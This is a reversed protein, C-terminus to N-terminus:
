NIERLNSDMDEEYYKEQKKNKKQFLEEYRKQNEVVKKHFTASTFDTDTEIVTYIGLKKPVEYPDVAGHHNVSVKGEAVVSADIIKITNQDVIGPAGIIIDDVYKLALVALIREQLSLVPYHSGKRRAITEDDHVGVILYTGLEKAKKLFRVHGIHILDFSGDVYVIKDEPTPAKGTVFAKLRRATQLFKVPARITEKHEEPDHEPKETGSEKAAEIKAIRLLRGLIDTTSIGETRKFIKMRKAQKIEYYSDVGDAGPALDDGHAVNQCNLEDILAITPNYPIKNNAIEDGWKCAAAIESREDINMITPGKVALVEEDSIVGIVLCEGLQKAQRMANFHGSHMLDFCGDVYLRKAKEVAKKDVQENQKNFTEILTEADKNAKTTADEDKNANALEQLFTTFKPDALLKSENLKGILTALYNLHNPEIPM